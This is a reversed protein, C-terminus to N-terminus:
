RMGVMLDVRQEFDSRHLMQITGAPFRDPEVFSSAAGGIWLEVGPPLHRRLNALQHLSRDLDDPMVMSIAVAAANVREAFNAIEEAPLDAGLYCVRLKRSAALAAHMLIGLEHQEGSVTAFVVTAGQALTAYTNLLSSLQRRVASSILREQGVTFEGRHWRDGVEWLAPTLVERIVESVPM